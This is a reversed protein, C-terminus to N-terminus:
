FDSVSDCCFCCDDVHAKAGAMEFSCRFANGKKKQEDVWTIWKFVSYM